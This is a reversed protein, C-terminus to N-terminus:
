EKVVVDIFSKINKLKDSDFNVLLVSSGTITPKFDISAKAEQKAGVTGVKAKIPKGDTLGIGEIAFSCNLLPEPLSNLLTLQATVPQNVRTEGLLKIGVDPEDLVIIKEAKHFDITQKDITIASVQIMMDPDIATGYRNYELKLSLRREEGSPVELNDSSFGCSDGLKGNYSIARAFFLLNCTRADLFNNTLVAYVEFNSGVIMNKALKIKLHLGPKEGTQLLKNRKQAKEYVQREEKSGEPYKYQHTIDHRENSGVAKTSIFNGVSKTSESFKVFKGNSLRVLDQVDANVEAFIFPTDYKMAVEGEKVAHLSAPGCCFVGESTEQPTPDSTQWGDFETGLDPRTMWSDVWVHFNWISDDGSIRDGNEDYLCEIVLNADTDHASGFNTVVRCPIGLARSVTCAVAAFVWCQGYRVPGSEAWQRLIEGSGMWPSPHNGGSFDAWEGVLVGRDDNSNIMASLVRTVYVPNRRSSNDKDADSVFKPSDDLIKLCIDLIGPEFQGFNWPKEKIRKFNGRYVLGHQALVYEKRKEESQMYVADQPCWANFLLAFKGLSTKQGLQDLTLTYEGIPAKPSSSISVTITGGSADKSASASWETDVTSEQSSFTVKTDSERRPLPGTEVIFKFNEEGEKFEKNSPSLHLVISFPQGRRVILREEGYLETHHSSSNSKINLDCRQIDLVKEQSM